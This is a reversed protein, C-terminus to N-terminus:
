MLKRDERVNESPECVAKMQAKKEEPSADPDFEFAPAGSAKAENMMTHEAAKADVSSHPDRSAELAGQSKLEAAKDATGELMAASAVEYM